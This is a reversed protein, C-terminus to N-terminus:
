NLTQVHDSFQTGYSEVLTLTGSLSLKYIHTGILTCDEKPVTFEVWIVFETNKPEFKTISFETKRKVVSTLKPYERDRADELVKLLFKNRDLIDAWNAILLRQLKDDLLVGDM